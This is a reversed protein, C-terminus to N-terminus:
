SLAEQMTFMIEQTNPFLPGEWINWEAFLDKQIVSCGDATTKTIVGNNIWHLDTIGGCSQRGTVGMNHHRRYDLVSMSRIRFADVTLADEAKSWNGVLIECGFAPQIGFDDIIPNQGTTVFSRYGNRCLMSHPIPYAAEIGMTFWYAEFEDWLEIVYDQGVDEGTVPHEQTLRQNRIIIEAPGNTNHQLGNQYWRSHSVRSALDISIKAAGGLRHLRDGLTWYQFIQSGRIIQFAVPHHQYEPYRLYFTQENRALGQILGSQHEDFRIVLCDRGQYVGHWNLASKLEELEMMTLPRSVM